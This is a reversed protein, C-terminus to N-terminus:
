AIKFYINCEEDNITVEVIGEDSVFIDLIDVAEDILEQREEDLLTEDNDVAEKLATLQDDLDYIVLGDVQGFFDVSGIEGRSEIKIKYVGNGKFWDQQNMGTWNNVLEVNVIKDFTLVNM